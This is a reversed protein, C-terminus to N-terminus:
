PIMEEEAKDYLINVITVLTEFDVESLYTRVDGSQVFKQRGSQDKIKAVYTGDPAGGGQEQTVILSFSALTTPVNSSSATWTAVM